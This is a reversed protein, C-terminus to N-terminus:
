LEIANTSVDKLKYLIIIPNDDEKLAKIKDVVEKPTNGINEWMLDRRSYNNMEWSFVKVFYDNYTGAFNSGLIIKESMKEGIAGSRIEGTTKNLLVFIISLDGGTELEFYQYNSVEAFQGRFTIKDQTFEKFFLEYNDFKGMPLQNEGLEVRYNLKLSDNEISYINYNFPQFVRICKESIPCFSYGTICEVVDESLYFINNIKFESDTQIISFKKQNNQGALQSLLYGNDYDIIDNYYFPVNYTKIYDGASTFIKVESSMGVILTKNKHNYCISHPHIIEKPGEGHELRKVFSGNKSFISVSGGQFKDLIYIYEEGIEVHVIIGLLSSDNTELKIVHMTDIIDDISIKENNIERSFDYVIMTEDINDRNNCSCLFFIVCILVFKM